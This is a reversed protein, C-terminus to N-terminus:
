GLLFKRVKVHAEDYALYFDEFAQMEEDDTFLLDDLVIMNRGRPGPHRALEGTLRDIERRLEENEARLAAKTRFGM